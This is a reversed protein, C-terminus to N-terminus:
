EFFSLFKKSIKEGTKNKVLRKIKNEPISDRQDTLLIQEISIESSLSEDKLGICDVVLNLIEIDALHDDREINKYLSIKM